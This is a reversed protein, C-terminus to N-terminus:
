FPFPGVRLFLFYRQGWHPEFRRSGSCIVTARDFSSCPWIPAPQPFNHHYNAAFSCTISPTVLLTQGSLVILCTYHNLHLLNFHELLYGLYCRRLSKGLFSISIIRNTLLCYAAEYWLRGLRLSYILYGSVDIRFRNKLSVKCPFKTRASIETVVLDFLSQSLQLTTHTTTAGQYLHPDLFRRFTKLNRGPFLLSM